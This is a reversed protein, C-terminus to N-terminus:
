RALVLRASGAGPEVRCLYVGASLSRVDIVGSTRQQLVCHGSADYVRLSMVPAPCSATRSPSDPDHGPVRLLVTALGSRAPNPLIAFDASMRVPSVETMGTLRSSYYVDAFPGSEYGGTVYIRDNVAVGDSAWRAAPLSTEVVWDGLRGDPGVAASYVGNLSGTTMGGASYIRDGIVGCTMGDIPAPLSTTSTWPGLSGDSNRRCFYVDSVPYSNADRGGVSYLWSDKVTAGMIRLPQPLQTTAAWPGLSGDSQIRAYRVDAIVPQGIGTAGGLIYLCSDVIVAGHTYLVGPLSAGTTWNGIAGSSDLPAYHVANTLGGSNWGGCVYIHGETADASFWGIATPLPTTLVWQGLTGDSNVLALDCSAEPGSGGGLFYVHSATAACAHRWSPRPLSTTAQWDLADGAAIACLALVSLITCNKM